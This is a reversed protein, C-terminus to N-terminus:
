IKPFLKSVVKGRDSMKSAAKRDNGGFTDRVSTCFEQFNLPLPLKADTGIRLQTWSRADGRMLTAAFTVKDEERAYTAALAHFYVALEHIFTELNKPQGTFPEPMPVRIRSALAQARAIDLQTQFTERLMEIKAQSEQATNVQAERLAGTEQILQGIAEQIQQNPEM